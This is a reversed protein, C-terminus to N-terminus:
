MESITFNYCSSWNSLFLIGFFLPLRQSNVLIEQKASFLTEMCYRPETSGAPCFADQPCEVPYIDPSPCYHNEPCTDCKAEGWRVQYDGPSCIRCMQDSPGKFMGPHCSVCKISAIGVAEEGAPCAACSDCKTTNCFSGSPCPECSSSSQNSAFYGKGCERCAAAGTENSYYGPECAWCTASKTSNTYFGPLCPLCSQQGALPQYHGQPCLQCDSSNVCSGDSCCICSETANDSFTGPLCAECLSKNVASCNVDISATTLTLTITSSIESTTMQAVALGIFCAAAAGLRWCTSRTNM